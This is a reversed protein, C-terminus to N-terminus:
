AHRVVDGGDPAVSIAGNEIKTGTSMASAEAASDTVYPGQPSTALLGLVGERFVVDTTVFPQDRLVRSSYRGFDWQTPAAGDAFMIIINRPASSVARGGASACGGCTMAIAALAVGLLFSRRTAPHERSLISTM